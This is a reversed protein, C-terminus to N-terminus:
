IWAQAKQLAEPQSLGPGLGLWPEYRLILFMYSFRILRINILTRMMLFYRIGHLGMQVAQFRPSFRMLYM